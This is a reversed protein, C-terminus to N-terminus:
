NALCSCLHKRDAAGVIASSYDDAVDIITYDSWVFPLADLASIRIRFRSGRNHPTM